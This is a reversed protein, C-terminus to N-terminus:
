DRTAKRLEVRTLNSTATSTSRLIDTTVIPRVGEAEDERIRDDDPAEVSESCGDDDLTVVVNGGGDDVDDVGDMDDVDGDVAVDIRGPGLVTSVSHIVTPVISGSPVNNM